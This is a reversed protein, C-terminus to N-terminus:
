KWIKCVVLLHSDFPIVDTVLYKVDKYSVVNNLGVSTDPSTTIALDIEYRLGLKEQIVDLKTFRVNGFFSSEEVTATTVLGGESDYQDARVLVSIEKDYFTNSFVSNWSNPIKM